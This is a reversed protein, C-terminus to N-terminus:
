DVYVLRRAVLLLSGCYACVLALRALAILRKGGKKWLTRWVSWRDAVKGEIKGYNRPWKVMNRSRLLHSATSRIFGMLSRHEGVNSLQLQEDSQQPGAFCKLGEAM